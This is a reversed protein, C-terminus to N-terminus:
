LLIVCFSSVCLRFLFSHILPFSTLAGCSEGIISPLLIGEDLVVDCVLCFRFPPLILFFPDECHRSGTRPLGRMVLTDYSRAGLDDGVFESFAAGTPIDPLPLFHLNDREEADSPVVHYKPRFFLARLDDLLWRGPSILESLTIPRIPYLLFV